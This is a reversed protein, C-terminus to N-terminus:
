DVSFSTMLQSLLLPEHTQVLTSIFAGIAAAKRRWPIRLDAQAGLSPDLGDSKIDLLDVGHLELHVFGARSLIRAMLIAGLKHSLSLLSGTLPLPGLRSIPLEVLSASGRKWPREADPRYPVSPALSERPDGLVAATEKGKLKLVAMAGAKLVQYGPSPLISADYELGHRVLRPIINPGLLYGPARFGLPLKGCVKEIADACRYVEADIEAPAMHSLDYPHSWTHNAIEFGQKAIKAIAGAHEDRVLTNGVVFVTAKAHFPALLKSLRETAVVLVPDIIDGHEAFGYLRSYCDLPDLDITICLMKRM